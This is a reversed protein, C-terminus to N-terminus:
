RLCGQTGHNLFWKCIDCMPCESCNPITPKCVLSGLDILAWNFSKADNKPLIKEAFMWLHKELSHDNRSKFGFVRKLVRAANTDVLPRTKGYCYCMVANAVYLGVGPLSLLKEREVPVRGGYEKILQGALSKLLTRRRRQLGLTLLLSELENDSASHLTIPDPFKRIFDEFVKEVRQAPTRQLMLELIIVQYPTLKKERWIFTRKNLAYWKLLRDVFEKKQRKFNVKLRSISNRGRTVKRNM